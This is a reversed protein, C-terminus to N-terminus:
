ILTYTNRHTSKEGFGQKVAQKAIVGLRAALEAAPHSREEGIAPREPGVCLQFTRDALSRVMRVMRVM